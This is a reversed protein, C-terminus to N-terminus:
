ATYLPLNQGQPNQASTLTKTAGGRTETVLNTYGAGTFYAQTAGALCFQASDGVVFEHDFMGAAVCGPHNTYSYYLFGLIEVIGARVDASTGCGEDKWGFVRMMGAHNVRLNVTSPNGDQGGEADFQWAWVRQGPNDIIYSGCVDFLFLDGTRTSTVSGTNSEMIVTKNSQNIIQAGMLRELEIVPQSGNSTIIISGSNGTFQAGTGVIRSINGRVLVNATLTYSSTSPLVITTNKPDDIALQLAADDTRTSGIGGKYLRINGWKTTDQEWAPDPARMYPLNISHTPSPFQSIQAHSSFESVVSGSPASVGGSSSTIARQYGQTFIGRAFLRSQNQIAAAATGGTLTANVLTLNGGQVVVGPVTNISTLSDIYLSAGANVVGYQSQGNLSLRVLTVSNLAESKCGVAFGKVYIDRAGCPGQEGTGLNLGINGKGDESIIDVESMLGENNAYWFVGNAGPNNNGVDVTLNHLGRFMDQAVGGGTKLVDKPSSTSTFTNDKLRIVTGKRSQGQMIPGQTCTGAVSPNCVKWTITNTVQYTGNPVYITTWGAHEDLARQLIATVDTKGTKDASYPPLTVDVIGSVDLLGSKFRPFIINEAYAGQACLGELLGVAGAMLMITRIIM